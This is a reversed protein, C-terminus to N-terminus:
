PSSSGAAAASTVITCKVSSYQRRYPRRYPRLTSPSTFLLNRQTYLDVTYFFTHKVCRGNKNLNILCYNYLNYM